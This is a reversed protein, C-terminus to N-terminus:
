PTDARLLPTPSYDRPSTDPPFLPTFSDDGNVDIWIPNTFGLPTITTGKYQPVVPDMGKSGRAVVM